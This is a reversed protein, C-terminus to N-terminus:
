RGPPQYGSPEVDDDLSGSIRGLTASPAPDTGFIETAWRYASSSRQQDEGGGAGGAGGFGGMAGMGGLNAGAQGPDDGGPASGLGAGREAPLPGDPVADAAREFSQATTSESPHAGDYQGAAADPVAPGAATDSVGATEPVAVPGPATDSLALPGAEGQGTQAADPEGTV